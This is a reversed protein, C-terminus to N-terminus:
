FGYQVVVAGGDNYIRMTDHPELIYRNLNMSRQLDNSIGPQPRTYIVLSKRLTDPFAYSRVNNKTRIWWGRTYINRDSQIVIWENDVGAATKNAAEDYYVRTIQVGKLAHDYSRGVYPGEKLIETPANSCGAAFVAVVMLRVLRGPM